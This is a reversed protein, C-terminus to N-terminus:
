SINKENINPIDTLSRFAKKRSSKVKLAGHCFIVNVLTLYCEFYLHGWQQLQSRRSENIKPFWFHGLIPKSELQTHNPALNGSNLNSINQLNLMSLNELENWDIEKVLIDQSIKKPM